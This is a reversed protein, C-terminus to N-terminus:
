CTSCMWSSPLSSDRGEPRVRPAPYRGGPDRVGDWCPSASLAGQAHKALRQALTKADSYREHRWRQPKPGESPHSQENSEVSM